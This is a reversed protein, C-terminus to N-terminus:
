HGTLNLCFRSCRGAPGYKAAARSGLIVVTLNSAEFGVEGIWKKAEIGRTLLCGTAPIM